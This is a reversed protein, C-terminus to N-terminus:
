GNRPRREMRYACWVTKQIKWDIDERKIGAIRAAVGSCIHGHILDVNVIDDFKSPLDAIRKRCSWVLEKWLPSYFLNTSTLTAVFAQSV